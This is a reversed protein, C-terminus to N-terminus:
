PVADLALSNYWWGWDGVTDVTQVVWDAAAAAQCGSAVLVIVIPLKLFSQKM